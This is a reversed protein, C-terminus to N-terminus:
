CAALGLVEQEVLTVRQNIGVEGSLKSFSPAAKIGEPLRRIIDSRIHLREPPTPDLRKLASKRAYRRCDIPLRRGCPDYKWIDVQQVLSGHLAHKVSRPAREPERQRVPYVRAYRRESSPCAVGILEIELDIGWWLLLGRMITIGVAHRVRANFGNAHRAM